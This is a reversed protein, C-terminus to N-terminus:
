VRFLFQPTSKNKHSFYLPCLQFSFFFLNKVTHLNGTSGQGAAVSYLRQRRAALTAETELWRRKSGGSKAGVWRLRLGSSTGGGGAVGERAAAPGDSTKANATCAETRNRQEADGPGPLPLLNAGAGSCKKEARAGADQISVNMSPQQSSPQHQNM